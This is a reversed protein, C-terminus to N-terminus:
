RLEEICVSVLNQWVVYSVRYLGFWQLIANLKRSYSNDVILLVARPLFIVTTFPIKASFSAIYINRCLIMSFIRASLYVYAM